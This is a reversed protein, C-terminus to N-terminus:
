LIKSRYWKSPQREKWGKGYSTRAANNSNLQQTCCFYNVDDLRSSVSFTTSKMVSPKWHLVGQTQPPHKSTCVVARVILGYLIPWCRRVRQIENRQLHRGVTQHLHKNYQSFIPYGTYCILASDTLDYLPHLRRNM